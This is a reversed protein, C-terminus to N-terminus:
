RAPESRITLCVHIQGMLTTRSCTSCHGIFRDLFCKGTPALEWGKLAEPRVSKASIAVEWPVEAWPVAFRKPPAVSQGAFTEVDRFELALLALGGARDCAGLHVMQQRPVKTGQKTKRLLDNYYFRDGQVSKSEIAFALAGNAFFGSWDAGGQETAIPRGGMLRYGPEAHELYAVTGRQRAAELQGGIVDKEFAKGVATAYSQAAGRARTM